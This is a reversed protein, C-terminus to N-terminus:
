GRRASFIAVLTKRKTGEVTAARALWTPVAGTGTMVVASGLLFIRRTLM